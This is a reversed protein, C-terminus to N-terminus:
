ENDHELLRRLNSVARYQLAKIAGETKELLTAVETISYGELFRLSIVSAQEETLRDIAKRLNDADFQREATQAPGEEKTVLDPADDISMYTARGRKRYQDIVLNHAIRYLWGSFSSNWAKEKRIAELMKLFVQATLDEALTPDGIRRYIYAFIREEYRDYIEGLAAEDFVRARELLEVESAITESSAQNPQTSTM